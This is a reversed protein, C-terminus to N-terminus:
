NEATPAAEPEAGFKLAIAARVVEELQTPTKNILQCLPNLEGDVYCRLYEARLRKHTDILLAKTVAPEEAYIELMMVRAIIEAPTPRYSMGAGM